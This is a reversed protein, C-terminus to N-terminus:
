AEVREVLKSLTRRMPEDFNKVLNSVAAPFPEGLELLGVLFDTAVALCTASSPDPAADCLMRLSSLLTSFTPVVADRLLAFLTTLAATVSACLEEDCLAVYLYDKNKLLFGRWDDTPQLAGDSM